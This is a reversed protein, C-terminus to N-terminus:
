EKFFLNMAAEIDGEKMIINLTKDFRKDESSKKKKDSDDIIGEKVLCKRFRDQLKKFTTDEKGKVMKLYELKGKIVNILDINKDTKLKSKEFIFQSKQLRYKELYHIWMRLEKIYNSRVNVKKNVILGTIEQRYSKSQMRTKSTNLELEEKTLIRNLETIFKTEKSFDYSGSFTIDDAYRTYLLNFRKSLGTLKRDLRYSLINTITPSTPAGQPLVTKLEEGVKLPHTCLCAIFFAIDEQEKTFDFPSNLFGYKVKKLDFSYFYDILDINYVYNHEIHYKANDVVSKGVVFGMAAPHAKFSSQLILNLAKLIYNLEKCPAHITRINGSKKKIEFSHYRQKVINYNAYYTLSRLALPKIKSTQNQNQIAITRNLVKLLDEKSKIQLFLNKLEDKQEQKINMYM